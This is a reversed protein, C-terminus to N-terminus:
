SRIYRYSEFDRLHQDCAYGQFIVIRQSRDSYRRGVIREGAAPPDINEDRCFFCPHEPYPYAGCHASAYDYAAEATPASDWTETYGDRLIREHEAFSRLRVALAERGRIYLTYLTDQAEETAVPM